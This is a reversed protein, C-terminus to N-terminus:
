KKNPQLPESSILVERQLDIQQWCNYRSRVTMGSHQCRCFLGVDKKQVLSVCCFVLSLEAVLQSYCLWGLSKVRETAKGFHHRERLCILSFQSWMKFINLYNLVCCSSISSHKRWMRLQSVNGKYSSTFTVGWSIIALTAIQPRNCYVQNCRWTNRVWVMRISLPWTNRIGKLCLYKQPLMCSESWPFALLIKRPIITM